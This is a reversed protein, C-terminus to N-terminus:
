ATKEQLLQSVSDMRGEQEEATSNFHSFNFPMQNPLFNCSVLCNIPTNTKTNPSLFVSYKTRVAKYQLPKIWSVHLLLKLDKQFNSAHSLYVFHMNRKTPKTTTKTKVLSFSSGMTLPSSLDDMLKGKFM